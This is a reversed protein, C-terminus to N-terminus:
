AGPNRVHLVFIIRTALPGTSPTVGPPELSAYREVLAVKKVAHGVRTERSAAWLAARQWLPGANAPSVLNEEWKRWRYDRYAGILAGDHPFTWQAVRGDDYTVAASVDIVVRRPNPAFLSWNQDLGVANLYPQAPRLLQQRLDSNPLNIAVIAILSVVILTSLVGRGFSSQEFRHQWGTAEPERPEGGQRFYRLTPERMAPRHERTGPRSERIGSWAEGVGRPSEGNAAGAARLPPREPRPQGPAPQEPPPQEPGPQEPAESRPEGTPSVAPEAERQGPQAAQSRQRERILTDARRKASGSVFPGFLSRRGALSWYGRDALRPARALVGALRPRGLLRLLAVFAEGGSYLSGDELALHWSELRREEPISSLLQAGEASQIPLPHLKEDADQHLIRAISWICFGCDQDYLLATRRIM